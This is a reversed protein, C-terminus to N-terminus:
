FRSRYTRNVAWNGYNLEPGRRQPPLMDNPTQITLRVANGNRDYFGDFQEDYPSGMDANDYNQRRNRRQAAGTRRSRRAGGYADNIWVYPM